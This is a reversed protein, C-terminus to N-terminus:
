DCVVGPNMRRDPDLASFGAKIAALPLEGKEQRLYPAHDRGVGHQHSITGGNDVIINSASHKLRQWRELASQYSPGPRFIYTTYITAGDNYCHSLHSFAIIKEDFSAASHQLGSEIQNAMADLQSWSVCTELTDVVFGQQWLTERLYPSNFRNKAWHRALKKPAVWGNDAKVQRSLQKTMAKCQMRDGTVGYLLMCTEDGVNFFSLARALWARRDPDVTLLLQTQTEKANSLRLMSFGCRQQTLKRVCRAGAQWDNFFVLGFSEQDAIASVKVDVETIVGLRGESGMVHQKFDSAAASAPVSPLRVTGQPTELKGGAFLQEIRGYRLSQQGSSRTAVWGGLTSYEFSQPFHGLTYGHAKLQAELEPGAVGAGFTALQSVEDLKIMRNLRAMSLVLVPRPSEPTNIHGVVSTGGGYPIVVWDQQKALSLITSVDENCEPFAVADPYRGLKGSKKALWDPLSQGRAHVLRQENTLDVLPYQLEIRSAPILSLAYEKSADALPQGPGIQQAIFDLGGHPLEFQAQEKGWGNWRM